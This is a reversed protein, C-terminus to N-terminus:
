RTARALSVGARLAHCSGSNASNEGTIEATVMLTSAAFAVNALPV